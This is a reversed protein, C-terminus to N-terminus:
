KYNVCKKMNDKTITVLETQITPNIDEYIIVNHRNIDAFSTHGNYQYQVVWHLNNNTLIVGLIDAPINKAELISAYAFSFDECDGTLNHTLYYDPNQWMDKKNFLEKDTKYNFKLPTKNHKWILGTSTLTTHDAYWQVVENNPTIYSSANTPYLITNNQVINEMPKLTTNFESQTPAGIHSQALLTILLIPIILNM